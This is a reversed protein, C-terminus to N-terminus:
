TLYGSIRRLVDRNHVKGLYGLDELFREHFERCLEEVRSTEDDTEFEWVVQENYLLHKGDSQFLGELHFPFLYVYGTEPDTFTWHLGFLDAYKNKMEDIDKDFETAESSQKYELTEITHFFLDRPETFDSHAIHAGPHFRSAKVTYETEDLILQVCTTCGKRTSRVSGDPIPIKKFDRHEIRQRFREMRRDPPENLSRLNVDFVWLDVQKWLSFLFVLRQEYGAPPNYIVNRNLRRLIDKIPMVEFDWARPIEKLWYIEYIPNDLQRTTLYMTFEFSKRYAHQIDHIAENLEVINEYQYAETTVAKAEEIAPRSGRFVQVRFWFLAENVEICFGRPEM